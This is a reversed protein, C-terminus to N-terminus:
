NSRAAAFRFGANLLRRRHTLQADTVGSHFIWEFQYDINEFFLPQPLTTVATPEGEVLEELVRLEQPPTSLRLSPVLLCSPGQQQSALTGAYTAQRKSIDSAWVTLEFHDTKVQLLEPM